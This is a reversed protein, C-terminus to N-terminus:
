PMSSSGMIRATTGGQPPSVAMSRTSRRSQGAIARASGVQNTPNESMAVSMAGSVSVVPHAVM